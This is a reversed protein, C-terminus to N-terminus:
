STYEDSYQAQDHLRQREQQLLQLRQWTAPSSNTTLLTQVLEIERSLRNDYLSLLMRQYDGEPDLCSRKLASDLERQLMTMASEPYDSKLISVLSAGDIHPHKEVVTAARAVLPAFMKNEALFETVQEIHSILVQPNTLLFVTFVRDAMAKMQPIPNTLAVHKKHSSFVYKPAQSRSGEQTFRRLLAKHREYLLKQYYQRVTLDLIQSTLTDIAKKLAALQEPTDLPRNRLLIQWVKEFLPTARSLIGAMVSAGETRILMDPDKNEPLLAFRVSLGPKLYSLVQQAARTSALRGAADGDFCLIPEPALRWLSALQKETLTTGLQAVTHAFGAGVLSIVDMYGETVIVTGNKIAPSRAQALGYLVEGKRFLPTTFSNLYKPQMTGLTRGGFAIVHGHIDTIPFIVRDRFTDYPSYGKGPYILLGGAILLNETIGEKKLTTSCINGHPAFGIRFFAIIKDDLGRAHLYDLGSRGSPLRLQREYFCTAMEMVTLLSSYHKTMNQHTEHLQNRLGAVQSLYKVADSFSLGDAQMVFNIVDGHAGCGFCYFFGKEESVTFSPTKESHFPCLGTYERGRRSLRVRQGIVTTLSLRARLTDLFSCQLRKM